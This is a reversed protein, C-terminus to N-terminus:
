VKEWNKRLQPLFNQNKDNVAGCDGIKQGHGGLFGWCFVIISYANFNIMNFSHM